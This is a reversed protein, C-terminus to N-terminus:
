ETKSNLLEGVTNIMFTGEETKRTILKNNEKVIEVNFCDNFQKGHPQGGYANQSHKFFSSGDRIDMKKSCRRQTSHSKICIHM